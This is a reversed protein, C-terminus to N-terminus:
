SQGFSLKPKISVLVKRIGAKKAADRLILLIRDDSLKDGAETTFLADTHNVQLDRCLAVFSKIEEVLAPAFKVVRQTNLSWVRVRLPSKQLPVLEQFPFTGLSTLEPILLRGEVLVDFLVRDRWTAFSTRRYKLERRIARIEFATLLTPNEINLKTIRKLPNM